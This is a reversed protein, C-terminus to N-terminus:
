PARPHPPPPRPACGGPPCLATPALRAQGPPCFGSSSSLGSTRKNALLANGAGLFRSRLIRGRTRLTPVVSCPGCAAASVQLRAVCCFAASPNRLHIRETLLNSGYAFYLFSEGEQGRLDECGSNAMNWWVGARGRPRRSSQSSVVTLTGVGTALSVPSGSNASLRSAHAPRTPPSREESQCRGRKQNAAPGM